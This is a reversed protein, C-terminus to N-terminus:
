DLIYVMANPPLRCYKITESWNKQTESIKLLQLLAQIYDPKLEIAKKYNSISEPLKAQEYLENGKELYIKADM